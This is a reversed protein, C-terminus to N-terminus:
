TFTGSNLTITKSAEVIEVNDQLFASQLRGADIRANAINTYFTAENVDETQDNGDWYKNIANTDDPIFTVIYGNM